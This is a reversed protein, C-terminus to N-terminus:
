AESTAAEAIARIRDIMSKLGNSRQPTLHDNLGLRGFVAHADAALIEAPPKDNYIALLIAILGQVIHADSEGRFMLHGTDANRESVLWVQSACGRVKTLETKEDDALPPLTRGLEIVYRYRDEWEDLLEFNDEIEELSM